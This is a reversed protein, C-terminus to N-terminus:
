KGYKGTCSDSNCRGFGSYFVNQLGNSEFASCPIIKQKWTDLEKANSPGVVLFIDPGGIKM